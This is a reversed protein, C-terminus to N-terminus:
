GTQDLSHGLDTFDGAVSSFSQLARAVENQSNSGAATELQHDTTTLDGLLRSWLSQVSRDPAAPLRAAAGLDTRLRGAAALLPSFQGNTVEPAVQDIESIDNELQSIVPQAALAWDDLHAPETASGSAV